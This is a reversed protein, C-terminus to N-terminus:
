QWSGNNLGLAFYLKFFSHSKNCLSVGVVISTLKFIIMYFSTYTPETNWSNCKREGLNPKSLKKAITKLFRVIDSNKM